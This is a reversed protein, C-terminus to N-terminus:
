TYCDSILQLMWMLRTTCRSVLEFPALSRRRRASKRNTRPPVIVAAREQRENVVTTAVNVVCGGCKHVNPRSSQPRLAGESMSWSKYRRSPPSHNPDNPAPLCFQNPSIRVLQEFTPTYRQRVLYVPETGRVSRCLKCLPQSARRCSAAFVSVQITEPASKPRCM